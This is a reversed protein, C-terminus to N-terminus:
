TATIDKLVTLANEMSLGIHVLLVSLRQHNIQQCQALHRRQFHAQCQLQRRQLCQLRRPRHYHPPYGQRNLQPCHRHCLRLYRLLLRQPFWQHCLRLYRLLLRQPFWQHARHLHIQHHSRPRYLLFLQHYQHRHTRLCLYRYVRQRQLHCLHPNILSHFVQWVM